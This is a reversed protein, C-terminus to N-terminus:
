VALNNLLNNLEDIFKNPSPLVHLKNDLNYVLKSLNIQAKIIEKLSERAKIELEVPNVNVVLEKEIEDFNPIIFTYADDFKNRITEIYKNNLLDLNFTKVQKNTKHKSLKIFLISITTHSFQCNSIRGYEELYNNDVLYKRFKTEIKRYGIGPFCLYYGHQALVFSKLIFIFDLVGTVKKNYFQNLFNDQLIYDIQEQTPKLSFPYNTVAIDVLNNFDATIFDNCQYEIKDKFNHTLVEKLTEVIDFGYIKTALDHIEYLLQGSGIAPELICCNNHGDLKIKNVIFERLKIPTIFEARNKAELRADLEIM